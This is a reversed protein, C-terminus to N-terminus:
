HTDQKLPKKAKLHAKKRVSLKKLFVSSLLFQEYIFRNTAHFENM